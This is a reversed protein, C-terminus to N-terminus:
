IKRVNAAPVVSNISSSISFYSKKLTSEMFFDPSVESGDETTYQVSIKIVKKVNSIKSILTHIEDIEESLKVGFKNAYKSLIQDVQDDINDNQFLELDISFFANYLYGKQIDIKDTVYYASRTKIFDQIEETTLLSSKTKPVYYLNVISRGSSNIFECYTGGIRVKEPYKEELVVGVDSNSRVISSVFKDRNAKYHIENLSDREAGPLIYVGTAYKVFGRPVQFIKLNRLEGGKITINELDSKNYKELPESKFYGAEIKTNAPLGTASGNLSNSLYLRSGYSPLTLDFVSKTLIHSTFSRDVNVLFEDNVKVWLDNTLDEKTCDVYFRKEPNINWTEVIQESAILGIITASSEDSIAPAFSSPSYIFKPVTAISQTGISSSISIDAGEVLETDSLYGLYYVKFKNMVIIEDFLNFTHYKTPKFKLIIRPCTGRYVSYMENVCHQIKSSPLVARELSAEQTFALNEVESVYSANALLHVILDVSDGSLGTRKAIDSYLKVYDKLNKM